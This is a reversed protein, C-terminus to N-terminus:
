SKSLLLTWEPAIPLVPALARVLAASPQSRPAPPAPESHEALRSAGAVVGLTLLAVPLRADAPGLPSREARARESAAGALLEPHSHARGVVARSRTNVAPRAVDLLARVPAVPAAESRAAGRTAVAAPRPVPNADSPLRAVDTALSGGFESFGAVWQHTKIKFLWCHLLNIM